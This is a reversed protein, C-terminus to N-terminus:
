RRDRHDRVRAAFPRRGHARARARHRRDARTASRPPRSTSRSTSAPPPSTRRGPRHGLPRHRPDGRAERRRAPLAAPPILAGDTGRMRILLERQVTEGTALDVIPQAHLEFRDDEFARRIEGLGAIEDLQAKLSAERAKRDTIDVMQGFLVDIAGDRERVPTISVSAWVETGDPRPYRKETVLQELDGNTLQPLNRGVAPQDDPHSIDALSLELLAERTGASWPASPTTSACTACPGRTSSRCRSRRTTSARASASRPAASPRRPTSRRRSTRSRAACGSRPAPRTASRASSRPSRGRVRGDPLLVRHESTANDEPSTAMLARM